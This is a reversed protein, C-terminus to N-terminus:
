KITVFSLFNQLTSNIINILINILRPMSFYAYQNYCKKINKNNWIMVELKDTVNHFYSSLDITQFIYNKTYEQM